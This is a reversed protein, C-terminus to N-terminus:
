LIRKRTRQRTVVEDAAGELKGVAAVVVAAEAKV